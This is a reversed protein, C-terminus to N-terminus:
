VMPYLYYDSLTSVYSTEISKLDQLRPSQEITEKNMTVFLKRDQWSIRDISQPVIVVTRDPLWKSTDLAMLTITRRSTNIVLDTPSGKKGAILPTSNARALMQDESETILRKLGVPLFIIIAVSFTLVLSRGRNYTLYRYALYISDKM